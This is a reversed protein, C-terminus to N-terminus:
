PAIKAGQPNNRKVFYRRFLGFATFAKWLVFVCVLNIKDCFRKAAMFYFLRRSFIRDLVPIVVAKEHGGKLLGDPLPTHLDEAMFRMMATLYRRVPSAHVEHAFRDWDLDRGHVRALADADAYYRFESFHDNIMCLLLYYLEDEKRLRDLPMGRWSGGRLRRQFLDASQVKFVYREIHWQFFRYHVDVEGGDPGCFTCERGKDLFVGDKLQNPALCFGKQELASRCRTFQAIDIFIDLDLSYRLGPDEYVGTVLSSGKLPVFDVGADTLLTSVQRLRAMWYLGRQVAAQEEKKFVALTPETLNKELGFKKLNAFFIHPMKMRLAVAAAQEVLAPAAWLGEGVSPAPDFVTLSYFVSLPSDSM